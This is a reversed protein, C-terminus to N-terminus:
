SAVIVGCPENSLSPLPGLHKIELTLWLPHGWLNHSLVNTMVGLRIDVAKADGGQLQHIPSCGVPVPRGELDEEVLEM